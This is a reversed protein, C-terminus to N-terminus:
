LEHTSGDKELVLVKKEVDEISEHCKHLLEMGEKYIKFSDELTINEDELARVKDELEDFAKELVFEEAM